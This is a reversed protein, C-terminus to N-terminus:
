CFLCQKVQMVWISLLSNLTIKELGRIRHNVLKGDGDKKLRSFVREVSVRKNYLVKWKKMHRPIQCYRRYDETIPIKVVLGYKSESCKDLWTCGEKGCVIPCRYKLRKQKKDYGWFVMPIDWGCKVSGDYEARHEFSPLADKKARRPNMLIIPISKAREVIYRYNEKADYGADALIHKPKFEDKLLDKTKELLPILSVSDSVNATTILSAIPIEYKADALLQLKYGLWVYKDNEGKKKFGWKANPDSNTKKYKSAYTSIDTGDIAITEGLDPLRKKLETVTDAMCKEILTQFGILKKIFRYYSFRSPVESESCIGCLVAIFPDGKLRRILGEITPIDFVYSAVLTHWMIKIPYGPRGTHRTAELANILEADHLNNFVAELEKTFATREFGAFIRQVEEWLAESSQKEVQKEPIISLPLPNTM